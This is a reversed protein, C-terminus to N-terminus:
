DIFIVTVNKEMEYIVKEDAKVRKLVHAPLMNDLIENARRCEKRLDLTHLYNWRKNSELQYASLIGCAIVLLTPIYISAQEVNSLKLGPVTRGDKMMAFIMFVIMEIIAMAFRIYWTVPLLYLIIFIRLLFMSAGDSDSGMLTLVIFGFFVFIMMMLSYRRKLFKTYSLSYVVIMEFIFCIMLIVFFINEDVGSINGNSDMCRKM